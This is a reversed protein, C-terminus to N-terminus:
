YVDLVCTSLTLLVVPSLDPLSNNKWSTFKPDQLSAGLSKGPIVPFFLSADEPDYCWDSYLSSLAFSNNVFSLVLISKNKSFITRMAHHELNDNTTAELLALRLQLFNVAGGQQRKPSRKPGISNILVCLRKRTLCAEKFTSWFTTSTGMALLWSSSQLKNYKLKRKLGIYTRLWLHSLLQKNKWENQAM